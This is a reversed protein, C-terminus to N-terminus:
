RADVLKIPVQLRLGSKLNIRVYPLLSAASPATARLLSLSLLKSVIISTTIYLECCIAQEHIKQLDTSDIIRSSAHSSRLVAAAVRRHM